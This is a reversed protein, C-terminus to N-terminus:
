KSGRPVSGLPAEIVQAFSSLEDRIREALKIQDPRYLLHVNPGADMTVLPGDKTQVWIERLLEIVKLSNASLYGFAPKSTEFLAQMDWFESWVLEHAEAWNSTELASLLQALRREAREVRGNFLESSTVRGHAERSSVLKVASSVVVAQHFLKPLPLELPRAGEGRWLAWPSFFSRCSSGSGKRSLASLDERTWSDIAQRDGGCEKALEYTALTLAAFSSASSALGCDSPFNNGSRVLHHGEIGFEKKAQAFFRLFKEQGMASLELAGFEESALPSWRDHDGDVAEIEVRTVLHDLTYSLSANAPLHSQPDTKGMYKILAINSPAEAQWLSM